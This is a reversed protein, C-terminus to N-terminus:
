GTIVPTVEELRYSADQRKEGPVQAFAKEAPAMCTDKIHALRDENMPHDNLFQFTDGPKQTKGMDEWFDRFKKPDYGARASLELGLCDADLEQSREWHQRGGVVYGIGLAGTVATIAQRDIKDPSTGLAVASAVNSAAVAVDGTLRKLEHRALVHAMEHGLLAALAGEVKAVPFVGEYVAIGGGPFAKAQEMDERLTALRWEIEKAAAGYTPHASAAEKLRDFIDDVQTTVKENTEKTRRGVEWDYIANGLTAVVSHPVSIPINSLLQGTLPSGAMGGGSPGGEAAQSGALQNGVKAVEALNIKDCAAVTICICLAATSLGLMSRVNM